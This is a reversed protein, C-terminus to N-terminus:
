KATFTGKMGLKAHGAVTCLYPKKGKTLTVTLTASKGTKLLPTKKGSIKFDHQLKGKNTVKFTVKGAPASSKSLLFHFETPKGITVTVTTAQTASGRSYAVSTVALAVLAALLALAITRAKM